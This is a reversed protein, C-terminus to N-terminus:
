DDDYTHSKFEELGYALVECICIIVLFMALFTIPNGDSAFYSFRCGVVVVVAALFLKLLLKFFNKVGEKTEKIAKKM